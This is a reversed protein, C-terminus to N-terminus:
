KKRTLKGETKLIHQWINKPIRNLFTLRRRANIYMFYLSFEQTPNKKFLFTICFVKNKKDSESITNMFQENKQQLKLM